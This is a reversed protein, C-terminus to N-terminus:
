PGAARRVVDPTWDKGRRLARLHRRVHDPSVPKAADEPSPFLWPGAPLFDVYGDLWPSEIEGRKTTCLAGLKQGAEPLLHLVARAVPEECREVVAHYRTLDPRAAPKPRRTGAASVTPPAQGRFTAWARLASRLVTATGQPTAPTIRARLYADADLGSELWARAAGTYMRVSNPARGQRRLWGEFDEVPDM